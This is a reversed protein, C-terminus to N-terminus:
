RWKDSIAQALSSMVGSVYAFVLHLLSVVRLLKSIAGRAFAVFDGYQRLSSSRTEDRGFDDVSEPVFM